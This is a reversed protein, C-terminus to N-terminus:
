AKVGQHEITEIVTDELHRCSAELGSTGPDLSHFGLALDPSEPRLRFDCSGAGVFLPDAIVSDTDRGTAQWEAFTGAGFRPEKGSPNWYLNREFITNCIGPNHRTSM